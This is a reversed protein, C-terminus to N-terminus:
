SPVSPTPIEFVPLRVTITTGEGLLSDLRINGGHLTVCRQVIALGLGTGPAEAVNSARTFAEFIDPLDEQPIGIGHDRVTLVVDHDDRRAIFEILAGEPSYKRANSLLNLLIHRLLSEDAAAGTLSGEVSLIVNGGNASRNEDTIRQLLSALDLPKTNCALKGAELGGLSLVQELMRSMHLSSDHIDQIHQSRQEAPLRDLYHGLIDASSLIVGLPTRFEHSVTNVFQSKMRFLEREIELSDRLDDHAKALEATRVKVEDALVRRQRAQVWALLALLTAISFGATVLIRTQSDQSDNNFRPGPKFLLHLEGMAGKIGITANMATGGRAQQYETPTAAKVRVLGEGVGPLEKSEVWPTGITGDENRHWYNTKIPTLFDAPRLITFIVDRGDKGLTRNELCFIGEGIHPIQFPATAVLTGPAAQALAALADRVQPFETLDTGPALLEEQQSTAVDRLKLATGEWTAMGVAIFRSHKLADDTNVVEEFDATDPQPMAQLRKRWAQMLQQHQRTDFVIADKVASAIHNLREQDRM